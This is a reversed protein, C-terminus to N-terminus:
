GSEKQKKAKRGKKRGKLTRKEEQQGVEMADDEGEEEVEGVDEVKDAKRKKRSEGLTVETTTGLSKGASAGAFSVVRGIRGDNLEVRVGEGHPKKSLVKAVVGQGGHPLKKAQVFVGDGVEVQEFSPRTAPSNSSAANLDLQQLKRLASEKERAKREALEKDYKDNGSLGAKIFRCAAEKNLTMNTRKGVDPNEVLAVKQMYQQIRKLETMIPHSKPDKAGSLRIQSFLITEIAYTLWTLLKARELPALNKNLSSLSKANLLPELATELDDINDGLEELLHAVNNDEDM